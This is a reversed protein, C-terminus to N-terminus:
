GIWLQHIYITCHYVFLWKVKYGNKEMIFLRDPRYSLYRKHVIYNFNPKREGQVGEGEWM